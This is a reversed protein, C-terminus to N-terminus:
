FKLEQMRAVDEGLHGVFFQVREHFHLLRPLLRNAKANLLAHFHPLCDTGAANIKFNVDLHNSQRPTKNWQRSPTKASVAYPAFGTM